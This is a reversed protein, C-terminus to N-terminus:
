PTTLYVDYRLTKMDLSYSPAQHDIFDAGKPRKVVVRKGARARAERLICAEQEQDLGVVQHFVQMGKKVKASKKRHPFMPDFYVVDYGSIVPLSLLYELSDQQDLLNVQNQAARSVNCRLVDDVDLREDFSRARILANDLLAYVQPHRELLDVQAGLYALFLADTGLGATLDLIKPANNSKVLCVRALESKFGSTQIRHLFSGSLFDITLELEQQSTKRSKTKSLNTSKGVLKAVDGQYILSYSSGLENSGLDNCVSSACESSESVGIESNALNNSKNEIDSPM